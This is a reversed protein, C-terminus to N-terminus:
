EDKAGAWSTPPTQGGNKIEAKLGKWPGRNFVKTRKLLPTLTVQLCWLNTPFLLQLTAKPTV